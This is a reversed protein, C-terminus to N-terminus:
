NLTVLIYFFIICEAFKLVIKELYIKGEGYDERTLVSFIVFTKIREASILM